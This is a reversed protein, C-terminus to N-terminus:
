STSNRWVVPSLGSQAAFARSFVAPESYGLRYSIESVSLARNRLLNKARELQVHHYLEKYCTQEQKLKRALSRESMALRKAVESRSLPPTYAWLWRSVRESWDVGESLVPALKKAIAEYNRCYLPNANVPIANVVGVPLLLCATEADFNVQCPALHAVEPWDDPKPFPLDIRLLPYKDGLIETSQVATAVLDMVLCAQRLRELESASIGPLQPRELTYSIAIARKEQSVVMRSHGWILEPYALSIRLVEQQNPAYKMALGVVGFTETGLKQTLGFAINIASRQPGIKDLIASYLQLHQNLSIPFNPEDFARMPLGAAQLLAISEIRSFGLSDMLGLAGTLTRYATALNGSALVRKHKHM